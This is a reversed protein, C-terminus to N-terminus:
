KHFVLEKCLSCPCQGLCCRSAWPHQSIILCNLWTFQQWGWSVKQIRETFPTPAFTCKYIYLIGVAIHVLCYCFLGKLSLHKKALHIKEARLSPSFAIGHSIVKLYVATIVLVTRSSATEKEGCAKQFSFPKEPSITAPDEMSQGNQTVKSAVLGLPLAAKTPKM